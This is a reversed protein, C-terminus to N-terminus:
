FYCKKISINQQSNEKCMLQFRNQCLLDQFNPFAVQETGAAHGSLLDQGCGAVAVCSVGPLHGYTSLVYIYINLTRFVELTLVQLFMLYLSNILFLSHIMLIADGRRTGSRM